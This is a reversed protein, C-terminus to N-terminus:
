LAFAKVTEGLNPHGSAMRPMGEVQFQRRGIEAQTKKHVKKKGTEETSQTEFRGKGERLLVGTM